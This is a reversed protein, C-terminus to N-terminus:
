EIHIVKGYLDYANTSAYPSLLNGDLFLSVDELAINFVNIVREYIEPM